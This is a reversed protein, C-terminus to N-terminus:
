MKEKSPDYYIEYRSCYYTLSDIVSYPEVYSDLMVFKIKVDSYKSKMKLARLCFAKPNERAAREADNLTQTIKSSYFNYQKQWYFEENLENIGKSLFDKYFAYNSGAKEYAELLADFNESTQARVINPSIVTIIFFLVAVFSKRNTNLM